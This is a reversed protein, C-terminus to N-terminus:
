GKGLFKVFSVFFEMAKILHEVPVQDEITHAYKEDGPGFGITPINFIGKTAVGNTSFRWYRLIPEADFQNNYAKMATRVFPHFKDMSWSAYYAKIPYVLGTHSKVEYEPVFITAKAKQVSSLAEIEKIVSEMTDDTNLRRDIHITASD